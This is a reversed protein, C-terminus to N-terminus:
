AGKDLDSWVLDVPVNDMNGADSILTTDTSWERSRIQWTRALLHAAMHM